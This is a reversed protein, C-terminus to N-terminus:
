YVHSFHYLYQCVFHLLDFISGNPVVYSWLALRELCLRHCYVSCLFLCFAFRGSGFQSDAFKHHVENSHQNFSCHDGSCQWFHRSHCYDHFGSTCDSNNSPKRIAGICFPSYFLETNNPFQTFSTLHAEPTQFNKM